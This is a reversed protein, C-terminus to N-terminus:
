IAADFGARVQQEAQKCLMKRDKVDAVKIAPKFVIHVHGQRPAALIAMFHPAFDMKGWWSYFTPLGGVPDSYRIAVPQIYTQDVAGTEFFAAFLSSRFPLVATGDTSTGEPFFLLRQGLEIRKSFESKQAIAQTSRRQIFVTGVSRAIGGILPWGSVESKAVFYVRAVSNLAFVDMWSVHNSVLGGAKTMAAGEVVVRLGIIRLVMRCAFGVIQQSMSFQGIVRLLVMPPILIFITIAICILRFCFRVYGIINPKNIPNGTQLSQDSM